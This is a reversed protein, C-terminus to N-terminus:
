SKEKLENLNIFSPCNESGVKHNSPVINFPEGKENERNYRLCHYRDWCGKAFCQHNDHSLKQFTMLSLFHADDPLQPRFQEPINGQCWVNNSKILQGNMKRIYFERGSFGKIVNNPRKMFPHVTYHCGGIIMRNPPPNEIKHIWFACHFCVHRKAMIPLYDCNDLYNDLCDQQGCLECNYHKPSNECADGLTNKCM